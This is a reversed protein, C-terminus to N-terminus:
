VASLFLSYHKRTKIKVTEIKLFILCAVSTSAQLIKITKNICWHSLPYQVCNNVDCGHLWGHTFLEAMANYYCGAVWSSTEHLAPRTVCLSLNHVENWRAGKHRFMHVNKYNNTNTGWERCFCHWSNPLDTFSYFPISDTSPYNRSNWPM